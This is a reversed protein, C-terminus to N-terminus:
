EKRQGTTPACLGLAAVGEKCAASAPPAAAAAPAAARGGPAQARRPAAPTCLGMAALAESCSEAAVAAPKIAQPKPAARGVAGNPPTQPVRPVPRPSPTASRTPAPSAISSSSDRKTAEETQPMAAAEQRSRAQTEVKEEADPGLMGGGVPGTTARTRDETAPVASTLAPSFDAYFFSQYVYYGLAILAVALGGGAVAVRFAFRPDRKPLPKFAAPDLSANTGAPGGPASTTPAADPQM